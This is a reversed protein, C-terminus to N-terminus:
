NGRERKEQKGVGLIRKGKKGRERKIKERKEDRGRFKRSERLKRL